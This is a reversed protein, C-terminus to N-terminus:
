GGGTTTAVGAGGNTTKTPPPSTPVPTSTQTTPPPPTTTTPASTTTPTTPTSTTTATTTTPTSTTTETVTTTTSSTTKSTSSACDHAALSRVTSAGQRLNRALTPNVNPPLGALTTRLTDAASRARACSGSSVAQNIASLQSSITSSEGASLLGHGSSGCAVVFAAAFGLGGALFARSRLGM